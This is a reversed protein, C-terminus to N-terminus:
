VHPREASSGLLSDSSRVYRWVTITYGAVGLGLAFGALMRGAFRRWDFKQNM